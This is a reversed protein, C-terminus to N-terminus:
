DVISQCETIDYRKVEKGDQEIVLELQHKILKFFIYFFISFVNVKKM